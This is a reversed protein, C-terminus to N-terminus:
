SNDISRRLGAPRAGSRLYHQADRYCDEAAVRDSSGDEARALVLYHELKQRASEPHATPRCRIGRSSVAQSREKADRGMLMKWQRRRVATRM